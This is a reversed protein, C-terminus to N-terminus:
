RPRRGHEARWGRASRGELRRAERAARGARSPELRGARRNRGERVCRERLTDCTYVLRSYIPLEACSHETPEPRVRRHTRKPDSTNERRSPPERRSPGRARAFTSRTKRPHGAPVRCAEEFSRAETGRRPGRPCAVRAPSPLERRLRLSAGATRPARRLAPRRAKPSRPLAGRPCSCLREDSVSGFGIRLGVSLDPSRMGIARILSSRRGVSTRCSPDARM